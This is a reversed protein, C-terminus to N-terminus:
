LKWVFVDVPKVNGTGIIPKGNYPIRVEKDSYNVAIGFGDRYEVCVGEPLELIDVKAQKFLNALLDKELDGKQSDVGVYTVLGKGVKKQTIATAGKYFDNSYVALTKVDAEPEIIEAWTSWKYQKGNMNVEREIGSPLMDFCQIKSGTIYSIKGGFNTEYFHGSKDKYATRCTIILNGGAEAYHLLKDTLQQDVMIYAPVILFPYKEFDDNESIIDVPAGFTKLTNYYKDIHNWIDWNRSQRNLEFEWANEPSYLIATRRKEYDAPNKTNDGAFEKRLLKIEGIFQSFELGGPSPTVGDTMIMGSHYQESGYLPQRFRYSCNIQSGGAFVHWLWLRVAGPELLPNVSGWNVQGPQLEMVGFVGNKDKPRFFDSALSIRNVDGVRFGNEGVGNKEGYVMYRTYTIFDLTSKGLHGDEYFPIYNTTIWQNPSVIERIARYQNTIFRAGDDTVFRKYDLIQHFNISWQHGPPLNIEEFDSYIQGWFATGWAENLKEITGYKNKLWSRFLPYVEPNYDYSPRPENDLQWGIIRKDNGYRKAMERILRLAYEEYLRSSFSAHQRAGHDLRRGNDNVICVEPHKRVLWVPPTATPTCLIVGLNNEAALRIAEDLWAFDFKGDEPEMQAWAFEAFHTFEFGMEKMKKFDREWQSRDWHEPYYYVGTICLDAPNFIPSKQAMAILFVFSLVTVIVTKKM